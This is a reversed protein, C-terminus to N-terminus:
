LGDGGCHKELFDLATRGKLDEVTAAPLGFWDLDAYVQAPSGMGAPHDTGFMTRSSFEELLPEFHDLNEAIQRGEEHSTWKGPSERYWRMASVSNTMDLYLQPYESMLEYALTFRPFLSHVLVVPMGPHGELIGRLYDLDQTQRYFVDFGTHVVFPRALEELKSFMPEFTPSFAEFLQVYPHLKIGALGYEAICRETVEEKRPTKAHLSGFGTVDPYASAVERSFANLPETEEEKLPFVFNFVKEVGCAALDELVQDATMDESSPHGPFIRHIWRVLGRTRSPPLIHVHSDVIM